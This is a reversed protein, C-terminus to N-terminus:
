LRRKFTILVYKLSYQKGAAQSYTNPDTIKYDTLNEFMKPNVTWMARVLETMLLLSEEPSEVEPMKDVKKHAFFSMNQDREYLNTIFAEKPQDEGAVTVFLGLIPFDETDSFNRYFWNGTNLYDSREKPTL